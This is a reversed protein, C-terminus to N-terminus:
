SAQHQEPKWVLGLVGGVIGLVLGVIFGGGSVISLTSFVLVLISGTRVKSPKGSNIMIAGVLVIVGSIVGVVGIVMILLIVVVVIFGLPGSQLATTFATVLASTLILIGAILSLIFAATPKAM